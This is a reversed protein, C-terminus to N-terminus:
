SGGNQKLFAILDKREGPKVVRFDMNNGPIFADTETLWKDLTADNWVIHANALAPSYTFGHITGSGRGYVSGLRPGERDETLSHCGTCRKEFVQKGMAPDGEASTAATDSGPAEHAWRQLIQLDAPTIAANWHILRYQPLPMEHSKAKQIIKAEFTQQQDASYTDWLSLNMAKRGAVVDREVLWSVPAFRGYVPVQSVASHCDACKATLLARVEPPAGSHELLPAQAAHVAYLGAGGFPHLARALVASLAVVLAWVTAVKLSGSM